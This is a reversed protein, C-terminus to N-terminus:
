LSRIYLSRFDSALLEKSAQQVIPSPMDTVPVDFVCNIFQVNRIEVRNQTFIIRCRDFRANAISVNDLLVTLHEFTKGGFDLVSDMMGWNFPASGEPPVDSSVGASAFRLFELVTPWYEPASPDTNRLKEAIARLVEPVLKVSSAPQEAIKRLVPLSKVFQPPPLSTLEKLVETPATSARLSRLTAEIADLRDETSQQFRAIQDRRNFAETGLMIAATIIGVNLAVYTAAGGFERILHWLKRIGKPKFSELQKEIERVIEEKIEKRVAMDESIKELLHQQHQM